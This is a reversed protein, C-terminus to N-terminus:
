INFSQQEDDFQALNVVQIRKQKAYNFTAATGGTAQTLYCICMSSREIMYRNRTMMCGQTYEQSVYVVDDCKELVRLFLQRDAAGWKRHHGHCPLALVLSIDPYNAKANLVTVAALLDFGIAGGSIFNSYGQEHLEVILKHLKNQLDPVIDHPLARHGSFCCTKTSHLM